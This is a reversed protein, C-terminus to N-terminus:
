ICNITVAHFHNTADAGTIVTISGNNQLAQFQPRMLMFTHTHGKGGDPLTYVVQAPATNIDSAPITINPHTHGQGSFVVTTAGNKKCDPPGGLPSPSPSQVPPPTKNSSSDDEPMCATLGVLGGFILVTLFKNLFDYSRM